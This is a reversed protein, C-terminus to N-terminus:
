FSGSFYKGIINGTFVVSENEENLDTVLYKMHKESDVPIQNPKGNYSLWM